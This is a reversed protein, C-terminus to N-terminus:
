CNSGVPNQYDSLQKCCPHSIPQTQLNCTSAPLKKSNEGNRTNDGAVVYNFAQVQQHLISITVNIYVAMIVLLILCLRHKTLPDTM